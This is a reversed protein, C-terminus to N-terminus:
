FIYFGNDSLKELLIYMSQGPFFSLYNLYTFLYGRKLPRIKKKKLM